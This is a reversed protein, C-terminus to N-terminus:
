RGAGSVSEQPVTRRAEGDEGAKAGAKGAPQAGFPDGPGNALIELNQWSREYLQIMAMVILASVIGLITTDFKFSLQTLVPELAIGGGKGM